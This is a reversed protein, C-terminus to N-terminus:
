STQEPPTQPRNIVAEYLWLAVGLFISIDALNFAPWHYGAYHFDLFDVVQGFRLRDLVNGLAGGAILSAAVHGVPGLSPLQRWLWAVVACAIIPIVLSTLWPYGSLMGFSVGKNWVPVLNFFSTLQIVRPPDFILDLMIEKTIVDALILVLGLGIFVRQPPTFKHGLGAM